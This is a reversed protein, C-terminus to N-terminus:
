VLDGKRREEDLSRYREKKERTKEITMEVREGGIGRSNM